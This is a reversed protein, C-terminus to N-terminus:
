DASKRPPAAVNPGYGGRAIFEAVRAVEADLTQSRARALGEAILRNRLEEDRAIRLLAEAAAASESPPILLAAAGAADAVGGVATAVVPVGSAFAELLVQPMGETLSVHLFMHSERYLDLLGGHVPVYGRLEAYASVDLRRLEDALKASLPGEGCVVMRWRPGSARLAALVQALLLPNKETDLRGVSLVRLEGDYPRAAAHEGAEIDEATILSVVIELVAPATRYQRALDPGVVVVPSRRALWRWSRELADAGLHMWRKTPRRSRVYTPFDQRVGLVLRRRRIRTLLAFAVAHPYPGLLWVRDADDLARWFRGLSRILSDLVAVPKTLSQYHPLAIFRVAAPLPYHCAGQGPDLRGLIILEDVHDTLAALFTAFAREGYVVGDLERYVYDTFAVLRM